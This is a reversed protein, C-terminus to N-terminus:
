SDLVVGFDRIKEHGSYCNYGIHWIHRWKTGFAYSSIYSGEMHRFTPNNLAQLIAIPIYM